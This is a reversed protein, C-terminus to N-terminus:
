GIGVDALERDVAARIARAAVRRAFGELARVEIVGTVRAEREVGRVHLEVARATVDRSRERAAPRRDAVFGEARCAGIAVDGRPPSMLHIKVHIAHSTSPALEANACSM